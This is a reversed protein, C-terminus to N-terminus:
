SGENLLPEVAQGLDQTSKIGFPLPHAIGERDILLVPTSPPNLFQDGYTNGITRILEAPATAFTWGFGAAQVYKKLMAADENPDIDLSVIVLDHTQEMMASELGRIEEQQARCNSCWVAMTEVLVVKGHYDSIAFPADTTSDQLPTGLWGAMEMSGAPAAMAEETAPTAHMMMSDATPVENMSMGDATPTDEMAMAEPTAAENMMVTPAAGTPGCAALTLAALLLGGSLKYMLQM